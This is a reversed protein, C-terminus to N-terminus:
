RTYKAHPCHLLALFPHSASRWRGILPQFHVESSSVVSLFHHLETPTWQWDLWVHVTAQVHVAGYNRCKPLLMCTHVHVKCWLSCTCTIVTIREKKLTLFNENAFNWRFYKVRSNNLLSFQQVVFNNWVTIKIRIHLIVFMHQGHPTFTGPTAAAVFCSHPSFPILTRRNKLGM